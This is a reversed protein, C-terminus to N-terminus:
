ETVENDEIWRWSWHFGLWHLSVRLNKEYYIQENITIIVTPIVAIWDWAALFQFGYFKMVTKM